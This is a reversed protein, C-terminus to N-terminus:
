GIHSTSTAAAASVTTVNSIKEFAALALAVTNGSASADGVCGEVKVAAPGRFVVIATTDAGTTLALDAENDGLFNNGVVVAQEVGNPLPSRTTTVAVTNAGTAPEWRSATNDWVVVLGMGELTETANGRLAIEAFHYDVNNENGFDSYGALVESLVKRTTGVIGFAM